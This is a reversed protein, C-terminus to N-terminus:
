HYSSYTTGYTDEFGREVWFNKLNLFGGDNLYADRAKVCEEMVKMDEVNSCNLKKKKVKM